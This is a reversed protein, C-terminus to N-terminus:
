KANAKKLQLYLVGFILGGVFGGIHAGNAVSGEMFEDIIGFVGLGLFVLMVGVLSPMLYILPHLVSRNLVILFGLYGYVVGSLGGFISRPEMFFQTYNAVLATFLFLGFYFGRGVYQEIRAGLVWVWLGNFLIHIFGFHLFAPTLPRWVQGAAIARELPLFTVSHFLGSNAVFFQIAFGVLGLAIIAISMWAKSPAKLLAMNVASFVSARQEPSLQSFAIQDATSQPTGTFGGASTEARSETSKKIDSFETPASAKPATRNAEHKKLAEAVREAPQETDILGQNVAQLFEKFCQIDSAKKFLLSCTEAHQDIRFEVSKYHLFAALHSLDKNSPFEAIKFWDNAM